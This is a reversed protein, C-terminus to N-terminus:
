GASSSSSELQLKRQKLTKIKLQRQKEFIDIADDLEIEGQDIKNCLDKRM